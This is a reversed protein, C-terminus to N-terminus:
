YPPYYKLRKTFYPQYMEILEVTDEYRRRIIRRHRDGGVDLARRLDVWSLLFTSYTIDNESKKFARNITRRKRYYELRKLWVGSLKLRTPYFKIILLTAILALATLAILHYPITALM